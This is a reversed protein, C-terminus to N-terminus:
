RFILILGKPQHEAILSKGDSSVSVSWRDSTCTPVGVIGDTATGLVVPESFDSSRRKGTFAIKAGEAFTLRGSVSFLNEKIDSEALTWTGKVAVNGGILTPLGGIDEFTWGFGGLNAGTGPAFRVTDFRPNVDSLPADTGPVADTTGPLGWTLLSGDGPDVLQQYDASNLTCVGTRNFMLANPPSWKEINKINGYIRVQDYTSYPGPQQGSPSLRYEFRHWGPTMVYTNTSVDNENGADVLTTYKLVYALVKNGDIYLRYSPYTNGAFAWTENTPSNNWIYGSYTIYINAAWGSTAPNRPNEYLMRFGRTVCNTLLAANMDVMNGRDYASNALYNTGEVVGSLAKRWLNSVAFSVTGERVDLVEGGAQSDEYRLTGSGTKALTSWAGKGGAVVSDGSLEASPLEYTAADDELTVTSNTLALLGGGKPLAGNAWLHLHSWQGSIGGTFDNNANSLHFEPRAKLEYWQTGPTEVGSLFFGGSGSVPGTIAISGPNSASAIMLRNAGLRVPGAWTNFTSEPTWDASSHGYLRAGDAAVELSWPVSKSMAYMDFISEKASLRVFNNETGSFTSTYTVALMNDLLEIGGTKADSSDKVTSSNLFPQSSTNFKLVHGNLEITAYNIYHGGAIWIRADAECTIKHQVAAMKQGSTSDVKIAGMWRKNASDWSGNGAIHYDRYRHANQATAPGSLVISAGDSVDVRSNDTVSEPGLSGSGNCIFVGDEIAVDFRAHTSMNATSSLTGDGKKVLKVVSAAMWVSAKADDFTEDEGDSVTVTLVTPTQPDDYVYTAEALVSGVVLSTAMMLIRKM